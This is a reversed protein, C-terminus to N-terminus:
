PEPNLTCTQPVYYLDMSEKPSSAPLLCVSDSSHKQRMTRLGEDLHM